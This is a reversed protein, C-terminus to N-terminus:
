DQNWFTNKFYRNTAKEIAVDPIAGDSEEGYLHLVLASFMSDPQENFIDQAFKSFIKKAKGSEQRSILENQSVLALPKIEEKLSFEYLKLLKETPSNSVLERITMKESRGLNM